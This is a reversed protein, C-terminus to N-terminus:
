FLTVEGKANINNLRDKAKQECLAKLDWVTM